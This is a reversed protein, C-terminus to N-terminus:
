LVLIKNITKKITVVTAILLYIRVIFVKYSPRWGLPKFYAVHFVCLNLMAYACLYITSVIPAIADVNGSFHNASFIVVM